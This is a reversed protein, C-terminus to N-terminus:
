VKWFFTAEAKARGSSDLPWPALEERAETLVVGFDVDIPTSSAVAARMVDAHQPTM